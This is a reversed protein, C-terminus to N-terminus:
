RKTVKSSACCHLARSARIRLAIRDARESKRSGVSLNVAATHRSWRHEHEVFGAFQQLGPATGAIRTKQLRFAALLRTADPRRTLMPNIDILVIKDIEGPIALGTIKM